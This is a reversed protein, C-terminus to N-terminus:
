SNEQNSVPLDTAAGRQLNANMGSPGLIDPASASSFMGGLMGDM